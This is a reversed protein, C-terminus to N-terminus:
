NIDSPKGDIAELPGRQPGLSVDDLAIVTTQREHWQALLVGGVVLAAGLYQVAALEDDLFMASLLTVFAVEVTLVMAADTSDLHRVAQYFTATALVTPVLMFVGLDVWGRTHSPTRVGGLLAIPTLAAFAGVLTWATVVIGPMSPSALRQSVIVYVSFMVAQGLAGVLGLVEIRGAADFLNASLVVGVFVVALALWIASSIRRRFRAAAIAVIVPYTYVLTVYTPAALRALASFGIVVTLGFWVGLALASRTPRISISRRQRITAIGVLAILAGGGFRFWLLSAVGIDDISGKGIVSSFSYCLASVLGWALGRVRAPPPV